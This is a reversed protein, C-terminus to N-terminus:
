TSRMFLSKVSIQHYYCCRIVIDQYEVLCHYHTHEQLIQLSPPLKAVADTGLSNAPLRKTNGHIRTAVGAKEYQQVLNDLRKHSMCHLFLFVKKCVSVGHIYYSSVPRFASVKHHTTHVIPQFATSRHAQIQALVVLDLEDSLLELNDQRCREVTERTCSCLQVVHSNLGWRVVM